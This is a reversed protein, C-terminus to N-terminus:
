FGEVDSVLSRLSGPHENVIICDEIDDPLHRVGVYHFDYYRYSDVITASLYNDFNCESLEYSDAFKNNGQVAVYIDRDCEGDGIDTRYLFTYYEKLGAPAM